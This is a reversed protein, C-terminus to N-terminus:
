HNACNMRPIYRDPNDGLLDHWQTKDNHLTVVGGRVAANTESAKPYPFSIIEPYLTDTNNLMHVMRVGSTDFQWYVIKQSDPSFKAFM